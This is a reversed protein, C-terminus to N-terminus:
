NTETFVKNLNKYHSTFKGNKNLIKASVLSAVAAEKDKKEAKLRKALSKLLKLQKSEM